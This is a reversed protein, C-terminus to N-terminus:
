PVIKNKIFKLLKLQSAILLGNLPIIYTCQYADDFKLWDRM